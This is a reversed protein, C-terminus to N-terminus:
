MVCQAWMTRCPRPIRGISERNGSIAWEFFDELEFVKGIKKSPAVVDSDPWWFAAEQSVEM